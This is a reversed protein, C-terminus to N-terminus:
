SQVALVALVVTAVALILALVFFVMYDRVDAVERWCSDAYRSRRGVHHIRDNM